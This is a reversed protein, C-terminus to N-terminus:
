VNGQLSSLKKELKDSVEGKKRVSAYQSTLLKRLLQVTTDVLDILGTHKESPLNRSGLESHARAIAAPWRDQNKM